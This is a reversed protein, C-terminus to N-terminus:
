RNIYINQEFRTMMSAIFSRSFSLLIYNKNEDAHYSCRGKSINSRIHGFVASTRTTHTISHKIPYFSIHIVEIPDVDNAIVVLQAKKSEILTTIHNIGYKVCAAAKKPEKKEGNKIATAEKVLRQKKQNSTEPKYKEM